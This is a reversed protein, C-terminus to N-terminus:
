VIDTFCQNPVFVTANNDRATNRLVCISPNQALFNYTSDPLGHPKLAQLGPSWVLFNHSNHQSAGTPEGTQVSQSCIWSVLQSGTGSAVSDGGRYFQTTLCVWGKQRVTSETLWKQWPLLFLLVLNNEVSGPVVSVCLRLLREMPRPPWCAFSCFDLSAQVDVPWPHPLGQPEYHKVQCLPSTFSLRSWAVTTMWSWSM